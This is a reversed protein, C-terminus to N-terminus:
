SLAGLYIWTMNPKDFLYEITQNAPLAIPQVPGDYTTGYATLSFAAISSKSRFRLVHRHPINASGYQEFGANTVSTTQTFLVLDYAASTAPSSNVSLDYRGVGLMPAGAPRELEVLLAGFGGIGTWHLIVVEGDVLTFDNGLGGLGSVAFTGDGSLTVTAQGGSSNRLCVVGHLYTPAHPSPGVSAFSLTASANHLDVVRHRHTWVDVQVFGDYNNESATSVDDEYTTSVPIKVLWLPPVTAGTSTDSSGATVQNDRGAYVLTQIGRGFSNFTWTEGATPVYRYFQTPGAIAIDGPQWGALRGMPETGAIVCAGHPYQGPEFPMDNQAFVSLLKRRALAYTIVPDPITKGQLQTVQQQLAAVAGPLQADTLVVDIAADAGVLVLNNHQLPTAGYQGNGIVRLWDDKVAGAPLSLQPVGGFGQTASLPASSNLRVTAVREVGVFGAMVVVHLSPKGVLVTNMGLALEAGAGHGIFVEGSAMDLGVRLADGANCGPLSQVSGNILPSGAGGAQVQVANAAYTVPYSGGWSAFVQLMVADAPSQQAGALMAAMFDTVSTAGDIFLVYFTKGMNSQAVFDPVEIGAAHRASVTAGVVAAWMMDRTFGATSALAQWGNADATGITSEADAVTFRAAAGGSTCADIDWSKIEIRKALDATDAHGGTAPGGGVEGTGSGGGIAQKLGGVTTRLKGGLWISDALDPVPKLNLDSLLTRKGLTM